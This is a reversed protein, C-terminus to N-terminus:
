DVCVSEVLCLLRRLKVVLRKLDAFGGGCDVHQVDLSEREERDCSGGGSQWVHAVIGTVVETTLTAVAIISSCCCEFDNGFPDGYSGIAGRSM